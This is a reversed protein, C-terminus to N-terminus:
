FCQSHSKSGTYKSWEYYYYQFTGLFENYADNVSAQKFVLEWTEKELLSNLYQVNDESCSRFIRFEEKVIAQRMKNKYQMQVQLTQAYHDSFGTATVKFKYDWLCKILIIQDIATQSRSRIRTPVDVIAQLGYLSLMTQLQPNVNGGLFDINLDGVISTNKGKSIFNSIITDLTEIFININSNPPRYVCIIVTNFQILEIISTEFHEKQNLSEFL